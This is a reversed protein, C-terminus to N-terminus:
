ARRTTLLPRTRFALSDFTNALVRTASELWRGPRPSRSSSAQSWKVCALCPIVVRGASKAGYASIGEAQEPHATEQKNSDYPTSQDAPTTSRTVVVVNHTTPSPCFLASVGVGSTSRDSPGSTAFCDEPRCTGFLDDRVRAVSAQYEDESISIAYLPPQRLGKGTAFPREPDVCSPNEDRHILSRSPDQSASPSATRPSPYGHPM